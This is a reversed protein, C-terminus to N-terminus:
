GGPTVGVRVTLTARALVCGGGQLLRIGRALGLGLGCPGSVPGL